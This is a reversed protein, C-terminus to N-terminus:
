GEIIIKFEKSSYVGGDFTNGDVSLEQTIDNWNFVRESYAGREYAYTEGDDDYLTFSSSKGPFIHFDLPAAVKEGTHQIVPGMPLIAGARVFIPIRELPAEAEINGSRVAKGSWFSYWNEMKPLYVKRSRVGQEYVPCVMLWPGLMFQDDVVCAKEDTPFDVAVARMFTYDEKTVMHALSYLYPLLRYRLCIFEVLTDYVTDGKDGFQWIERPFDTGHVRFMPLFAGYQFWRLFLERYEDDAPGKNYHGDGYWQKWNKVFFGGIDLTWYPCGSSTFSLGEAIQRHLTKWNASIDGSWTFTGYRQQGAYSSRTLNLVRKDSVSRQGEYIGKCHLLSYSCVYEPDIYTSAEAVNMLQRQEPEPKVTSETWDAEFPETCDCWWADIGHHFLGENTQKWFMEQGSQKFPNYTSNNLLMLGNECFESHNIAGPAMHPWMSIMLKVNDSHLREMMASPDPFRSHDFIKEGWLEGEWSKWDLIMLDLPIGRSRYESAVDIIEEASIYREKSQCFGFSWRPPMPAKGTLYRYGSIVKDFTEGAVFYYDMEEDVDTWLYSGYGDDHFTMDTYSDFLMGYGRSSWFFPVCAKMNQQYLFRSKGRLNLYGEEHSGFGMIAEDDSFTFNLKTHYAMRNFVRKLFKADVRVGDVTTRQNIVSQEGHEYHYVEIKELERPRWQDESVLLSGSTDSYTCALTQRNVSVTVKGTKLTVFSEDEVKELPVASTDHQVLMLSPTTSFCDSKTYTIRIIYPTVAIIRLKGDDKKFEHYYFPKQEM